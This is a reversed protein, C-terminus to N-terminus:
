HPFWPSQHKQRRKTEYKPDEDTSAHSSENRYDKYPYGRRRFYVGFGAALISAIVAIVLALCDVDAPKFLKDRVAFITVAIGLFMVWSFVALRERLSQKNGFLYNIRLEHLTDISLAYAGGILLDAAHTEILVTVFNLESRDSFLLAGLATYCYVGLVAFLIPLVTLFVVISAYLKADENRKARELKGRELGGMFYVGDLFDVPQVGYSALIIDHDINYIPTNVVSTRTARRSNALKM